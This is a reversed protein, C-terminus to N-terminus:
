DHIQIEINYICHNDHNALTTDQYSCYQLLLQFHQNDNYLCLMRLNSAILKNSFNPSLSRPYICFYQRLDLDIWVLSIIMKFSSFHTLM